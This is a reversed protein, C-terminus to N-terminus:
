MGPKVRLLFMRGDIEESVGDIHLSVRLVPIMNRLHDIQPTM